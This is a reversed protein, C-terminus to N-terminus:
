IKGGSNTLYSYLNDNIPHEMSLRMKVVSARKEDNMNTEEFSEDVPYVDGLYYFDKGEDNNKKVFLPLRLTNKHNRIKVIEPSLLNRRPKSFWQFERNSVFKDDFKTTDAIHEEKHYNVFIPCTDNKVKYGFVTSEENFEWNLIRCVDKRSYKEWLLFGNVYRTENYKSDFVSEACAFVDKLYEKFTMDKLLDIFYPAFCINGERVEVIQKSKRVFDFNINAICSKITEDSVDIGYRRKIVSRIREYSVEGYKLLETMVFVEHIRKANAIESSFMALLLRHDEGISACLVAEQAKVFQYYSLSCEVYQYPDRFGNELFDVMMPIRGLRYKLLLYDKILDRKFQLNSNDISAFIREKSIQDFNVTSTGPLLVSGSSMLKRLTDKNYSTDGYLAIPVLYCNSYNGIFDIITLFEKEDNKRLGRGLQQVFVIASQTPRLMVVQNVRPIDVGENFIDRTFIYDLKDSSSDSELRLISEARLAESDDGTLAITNFGRLNFGLSLSRCEEVSSCFVLGRVEGNDCGYLKTKEIVRDIREDSSLLSFDANESLLEGDVTIDTVGYYHFPSLMNAELAQHLRIEYAITHDFLTFIDFGDTREPTATMGLMFKPKFHDFIKQYSDAGARHTEDIVIYDFHEASFKALHEVRSITQITSFIYDAEVEREAGSYMGMSKADGFVSRFTKMAAQAINARHVVFLFRKPDVKKVDFASLYTKGTGTASILLAKNKGEFRLKALNELAEEQMKNPVVETQAAASFQSALMKNTRFQNIYVAEYNDIFDVDVASASDFESNFERLANFIIDSNLSASIKLNWEKNTCLAGATLNSSGVILDYVQGNKFLYGKAHFNGEVSIKLEINKLRLLKRLAEPQTFNLYQSVLIKGKIGRSELEILKSLLTAVGSTTVFAVSIWFEDCRSLEQDITTLIKKEGKKDNVLFQPVFEKKSQILYDVFGTQLSQTLSAM